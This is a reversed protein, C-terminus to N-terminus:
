LKLYMVELSPCVENDTAGCLEEASSFKGFVRMMEEYAPDDQPLALEKSPDASVYEV